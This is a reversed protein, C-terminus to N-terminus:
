NTKNTNFLLSIIDEKDFNMIISKTDIEKLADKVAEPTFEVGVLKHLIEGDLDGLLFFDGLLNIERILNHKITIRAEFKGCGEKRYTRITTYAPNSGYIFAQTLYEKEIEKIKRIAEEGLVEEEDSMCHKLHERLGNVDTKIYDKLLGIRQRVSEVGKAILKENDPTISGIMNEMNTDYLMTGHLVNRDGIRYFANGSVKKGDVMIDNRGSAEANVGLKRLADAVRTVYRKYAEKVTGGRGIYSLMINSMDAYVCGGGSKRRFTNIGKRKCYDLNVENEIVQNRGFIVTPEVQWMFFWDDDQTYRALYEEMALYFTLRETKPNPLSAYKM